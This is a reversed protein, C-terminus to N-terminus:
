ASQLPRLRRDKREAAAGEQSLVGPTDATITETCPLLGVIHLVKIVPTALPTCTHYSDLLLTFQGASPLKPM